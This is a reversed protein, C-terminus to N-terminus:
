GLMGSLAISWAEVILGARQCRQVGPVGPVVMSGGGGESTGEEGEPNTTIGQSSFRGHTFDTMDKSRLSHTCITFAKLANLEVASPLIERRCQQHNFYPRAPTYARM